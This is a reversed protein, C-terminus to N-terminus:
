NGGIAGQAVLMASQITLLSNRVNTKVQENKIGLVGQDLAAQIADLIPKLLPELKPRADAPFATYQKTLDATLIVASAVKSCVGNLIIRADAESIVSAAQESVVTNALADNVIAAGEIAKAAKQLAADSCATLTLALALVLAALSRPRPNM